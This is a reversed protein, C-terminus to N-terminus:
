SLVSTTDASEALKTKWAELIATANSSSFRSYSAARFQLAEELSNVPARLLFREKSYEKLLAADTFLPSAVSDVAARRCIRCTVIRLEDTLYQSDLTVNLKADSQHCADAIQALEMELYQFQRSRLKGTNMPVDLRKAGRRLLDRAGYAKVASPSYGAPWDVVTGLVINSGKTWNVALDLDCPRVFVVAVGYQGALEIGKAVDAETLETELLTLDFQAAFEEYGEHKTTEM